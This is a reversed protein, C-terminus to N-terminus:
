IPWTPIYTPSWQFGYLSYSFPVREPRRAKVRGPTQPRTMPTQSRRPHLDNLITHVTLLKTGMAGGTNSTLQLAFFLSVCVLMPSVVLLAFRRYDGLAVRGAADDHRVRYLVVVISRGARRLVPGVAPDIKIEGRVAGSGHAMQEQDGGTSARCPAAYIRHRLRHLRRHPHLRLHQRQPHLNAATLISASTHPNLASTRINRVLKMMKQKFDTVLRLFCRGRGKKSASFGAFADSLGQRWKSSSTCLRSIMTLPSELGRAAEVM